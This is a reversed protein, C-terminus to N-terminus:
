PEGREDCAKAHQNSRPWHPRQISPAAGRESLRAERAFDTTAWGQQLSARIAKLDAEKM